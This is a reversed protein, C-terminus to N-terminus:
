RGVTPRGHLFAYPAVNALMFLAGGQAGRPSPRSCQRLSRNHWISVIANANYVTTLHAAGHVVLNQSEPSFRLRAVDTKLRCLAFITLAQELANRSQPLFRLPGGACARLLADPRNPTAARGRWSRAASV